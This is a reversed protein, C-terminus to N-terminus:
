ISLHSSLSPCVPQPTPNLRANDASPPPPSPALFFFLLAPATPTHSRTNPAIDSALSRNPTFFLDASLFPPIPDFNGTGDPDGKGNTVGDPDGGGGGGDLEGGGITEPPPPPPFRISPSDRSNSRRVPPIRGGEVMAGVVDNLSFGFCFTRMSVFYVGGLSFLGIPHLM